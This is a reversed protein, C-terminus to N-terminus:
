TAAGAMWPATDTLAGFTTATHGGAVSVCRQFAPRVTHDATLRDWNHVLCVMPRGLARGDAAMQWVLSQFEPRDLPLEGLADSGRDVWVGVIDGGYQDVTNRCGLLRQDLLRRSRYAATRDYVYVCPTLAGRM